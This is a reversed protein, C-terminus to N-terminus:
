RDLRSSFIQRRGEQAWGGTASRKVSIIRGMGQGIVTHVAAAVVTQIVPDEEIPQAPEAGKVPVAENTRSVAEEAAVAARRAFLFGMTGTVASLLSLVFIVFLFGLLVISVAQSELPGPTEAAVAIINFISNM